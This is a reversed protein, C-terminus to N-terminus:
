CSFFYGDYTNFKKFCMQIPVGHVDKIHNRLLNALHFTVSCSSDPCKFKYKRNTFEITLKHVGRLHRYLASRRKFEKQCVICVTKNEENDPDM